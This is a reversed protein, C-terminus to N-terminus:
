RVHKWSIRSSKEDGVQTDMWGTRGLKIVMVVTQRTCIKFSM